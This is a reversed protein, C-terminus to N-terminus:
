VSFEDYRGKSLSRVPQGETLGTDLHNFCGAFCTLIFTNIAARLLIKQQIGAKAPIVPSISFRPKFCSPMPKSLM